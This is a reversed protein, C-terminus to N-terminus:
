APAPALRARVAAIAARAEAARSRVAEPAIQPVTPAVFAPPTSTARPPEGLAGLRAQVVSVRSRATTLDRTMEHVLAKPSWGAALAAAVRQRMRFRSFRGVHETGFDVQALVADVAQPNTIEQDGEGRRLRAAPVAPLEVHAPPPPTQDNSITYLPASAPEGTFPQSIGTDGEPQKQPVDNGQETAEESFLAAEESVNEESTLASVAEATAVRKARRAGATPSPARGAPVALRYTIRKRRVMELKSPRDLDLWGDAEIAQVRDRITRETLGTEQALEAQSPSNAEPIVGDQARARDSLTWLILRDTPSLDRSARLARNFDWKSIM